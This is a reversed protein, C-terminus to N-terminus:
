NEPDGLQFPFDDELGGPAFINTEPPRAKYTPINPHRSWQNRAPNESPTHHLDWSDDDNM